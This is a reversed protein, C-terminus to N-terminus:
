RRRASKKLLKELNDCATRLQKSAQDLAQVAAEFEHRDLIVQGEGFDAPTEMLELAVASGEGHDAQEKFFWDLPRGLASALSAADSASPEMLGRLYRSISSQSLGTANSLQVQTLGSELM